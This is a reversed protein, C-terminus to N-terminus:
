SALLVGIMSHAYQQKVPNAHRILAARLYQMGEGGFGLRQAAQAALVFPQQGFCSSEFICDAFRLDEPEPLIDVAEAEQVISTSRALMLLQVNLLIANNAMLQVVEGNNERTWFWRAPPIAEVKAVANQWTLSWVKLVRMMRESPLRPWVAVSTMGM